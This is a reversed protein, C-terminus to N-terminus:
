AIARAPLLVNLAVSSHRRRRRVPSFLTLGGLHAGANVIGMYFPPPGRHLARSFSFFFVIRATRPPKRIAIREAFFIMKGSSFFSFFAWGTSHICVLAPSRCRDSGGPFFAEAELLSPFGCGHCSPPRRSYNGKSFLRSASPLLSSAFFGSTSFCFAFRAV